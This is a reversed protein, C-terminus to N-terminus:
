TDKVLSLLIAKFEEPIPASRKTDQRTIVHTIKANGALIKKTQNYYTFCLTFSSTGIKDLWIAIEIQDLMELPAMYDAEAHVVPMLYGAQTLTNFTWAKPRLFNELAELALRLQNPFYIVGTADTDHLYIHTHYHFM